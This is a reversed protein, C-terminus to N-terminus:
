RPLLVIACNSCSMRGFVVYRLQVMYLLRNAALSLLVQTATQDENLSVQHSTLSLDLLCSALLLTARSVIVYELLSRSM